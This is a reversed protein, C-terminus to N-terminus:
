EDHYLPIVKKLKIYFYIKLIGARCNESPCRDDSYCVTGSRNQGPWSTDRHEFEAVCERCPPYPLFNKM